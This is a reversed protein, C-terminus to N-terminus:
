IVDKFFKMSLHFIELSIKKKENSIKNEEFVIFITQLNRCNNVLAEIMTLLNM